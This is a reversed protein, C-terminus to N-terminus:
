ATAVSAVASDEAAAKARAMKMLDLVGRADATEGPTWFDVCERADKDGREALDLLMWPAMRCTYESDERRELPLM